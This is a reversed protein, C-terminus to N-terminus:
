QFTLPSESSANFISFTTDVVRKRRNGTATCQNLIHLMLVIFEM